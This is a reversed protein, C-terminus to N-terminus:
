DTDRCSVSRLVEIDKEQENNHNLHSSEGVHVYTQVIPGWSTDCKLSRTSQKFSPTKSSFASRQVTIFRLIHYNMGGEQEDYERSGTQERNDTQGRSGTQGRNGTRRDGTYERSEPRDLYLVIADM